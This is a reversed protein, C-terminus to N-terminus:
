DARSRVPLLARVRADTLYLAAWLMLGLIIPFIISFTPSGIRVHTAVAGSLYGTMLVAGLVSTAPILYLLVCAIVLIGLFLILHEPWGLAVTAETVPPPNILKGVGDMLLFLIAIGGIIRAAWLTRRSANPNQIATPIQTTSQM